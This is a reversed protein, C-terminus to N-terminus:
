YGTATLEILTAAIAELDVVLAQPVARLAAAPMIPWEATAPSQVMTVGGVAAIEALGQAGDENAGTLIIGILAPGFADAASSFLLDISPRAYNVKGDVSLAFSGDAEMLLHYDAPACHITAARLLLKDEVEVVAHPTHRALYEQWYSTTGPHQHLVVVVPVVFSPPLAAIITSIAAIGGASGGIVVAAFPRSKPRSLRDQPLSEM